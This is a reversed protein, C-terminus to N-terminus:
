GVVVSDCCNAGPRSHTAKRKAAESISCGQKRRSCVLSVSLASRSETLSGKAIKKAFSAALVKNRTKVSNSISGNKAPKKLTWMRASKGWSDRTKKRTLRPIAMGPVANEAIEACARMRSSMNGSSRSGTSVGMKIAVVSTVAPSRPGSGLRLKPPRPIMIAKSTTKKVARHSKPSYRSSSHPICVAFQSASFRAGVRAHPLRFPPVAHQLASESRDNEKEQDSEGRVQSKIVRGNFPRHADDLLNKIQMNGASEAREHRKPSTEVGIKPM